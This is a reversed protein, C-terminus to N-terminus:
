EENIKIKPYPKHGKIGTSIMEIGDIDIPTDFVMWNVDDICKLTAGVVENLEDFSSFMVKSTTYYKVPSGTAIDIGDFKLIGRKAPNNEEFWKTKTDIRFKTIQMAGRADLSYRDAEQSQGIGLGSYKVGKKVESKNDQKSTTM